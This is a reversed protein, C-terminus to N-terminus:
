PMSTQNKLRNANLQVNGNPLKKTTKSVAVQLKTQSLDSIICKGNDDIPVIFSRATFHYASDYFYPESHPTHWDEGFDGKGAIEISKVKKTVRLLSGACLKRLHSAKNLLRKTAIVAASRAMVRPMRKVVTAHYKKFAKLLATTAECDALLHDQIKKMYVDRVHIKPESLAYLNRKYARRSTSKKAFRRFATKKKEPDSKYNAKSAAKKKEPQAKYKAESGAKKKEPQDKYNAKSAAIKKEPQAKYNAKSAAKKKEPDARYCSISRAKKKEPDTRYRTRSAAKKEPDTRYRARSAAKKKEPDARYRARSAAKKREPDISYSAKSYARYFTKRKEKLHLIDKVTTQQKNETYNKRRQNRKQQLLSPM